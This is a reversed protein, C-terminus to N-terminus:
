NAIVWFKLNCAATNAQLRIPTSTGTVVRFAAFEGALIKGFAVMAGGSKPGYTIYNAADLNQLFVWGGTSGVDGIVLDEEATGINQVGSAAAQTAVDVSIQAPQFSDKYTGKTLSASISVKLEASM